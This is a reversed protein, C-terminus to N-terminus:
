GPLIQGLPYVTVQSLSFPMEPVNIVQPLDGIRTKRNGNSGTHVEFMVQSSFQAFDSRPPNRCEARRITPTRAMEETKLIMGQFVSRKDIEDLMIAHVTQFIKYIVIIL